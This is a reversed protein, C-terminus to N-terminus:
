QTLSDIYEELCLGNDRMELALRRGVYRYHWPEYVIGTRESKDSPYRLIFGYNWCNEMLWQQTPMEAQSEDLSWNRNDIIDVALGLQHESTGPVAVSLGALETAKERSYGNESIYRNIRRQYLYNQEDYSRYGSIPVPCFGAAWCDDMMSKYADYAEVAIPQHDDLLTLEVSYDEPLLHWPNVLYLQAGTSDFYWEQGDIEVAGVAMVGNDDLYFKEGELELWGTVVEGTECAYYRRGDLDQWGSAPCGDETLLFPRGDIQQLGTCLRGDTGLYYQQGDLYLWGTTMSGNKAFYYTSGDIEQWATLAEGDAYYRTTGGETMWGQAPPDTEASPIAAPAKEGCGTLLMAALVAAIMGAKKM